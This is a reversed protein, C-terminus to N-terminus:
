RTTAAAIEQRIAAALSPNAKEQSRAIGEAEPARGLKIYSRALGMWAPVLAGNIGLAQRYAREAPEYRQLDSNADGLILLTTPSDRLVLLANDIVAIARRPEGITRHEQALLNWGEPMDPSLRVMERFCQIARAHQKQQSYAYGAVMWWATRSRDKELNEEAFKALAVWDGSQELEAIRQRNASPEKEFHSLLTSLTGDPIAALLLQAPTSCSSLVPLVVLWLAFACLRLRVSLLDIM